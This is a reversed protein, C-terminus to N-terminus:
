VRPIWTYLYYRCQAGFDTFIVEMPSDPDRPFVPVPSAARNGRQCLLLELLDLLKEM